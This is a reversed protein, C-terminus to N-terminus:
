RLGAARTDSLITKWNVFHKAVYLFFVILLKAISGANGMAFPNMVFFNKCQEKNAVSHLLHHM